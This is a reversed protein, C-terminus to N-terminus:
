GNRRKMFGNMTGRIQTAALDRDVKRLRHTPRATLRARSPMFVAASVQEKPASMSFNVVCAAIQAPMFERHEEARNWRQRLAALQRPQLEYFEDSTLGLDHRATSWLM